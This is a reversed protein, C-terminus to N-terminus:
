ATDSPGPPEGFEVRVPVRGRPDPDILAGVLGKESALRAAEIFEDLDSSFLATSAPPLEAVPHAAIFAEAAERSTFLLLYAREGSRAICPDDEKFEVQWLAHALYDRGPDPSSDSPVAM